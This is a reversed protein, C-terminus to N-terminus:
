YKAPYICKTFGILSGYIFSNLCRKDQEFDLSDSSTIIRNNM